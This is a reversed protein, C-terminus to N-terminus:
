LRPRSFYGHIQCWARRNVFSGDVVTDSGRLAVGDSLIVWIMGEGSKNSKTHESLSTIKRHKWDNEFMHCSRWKVM